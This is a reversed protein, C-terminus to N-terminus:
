RATGGPRGAHYGPPAGHFEVQHADLAADAKKRNYEEPTVPGYVIRQCGALACIVQYPGNPRPNKLAKCLRGYVGKTVFRAGNCGECVIREFGFERYGVGKCYPCEYKAAAESMAEM